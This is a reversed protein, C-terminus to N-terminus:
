RPLCVSADAISGRGRRLGRQRPQPRGLSPHTGVPQARRQLEGPHHRRQHDRGPDRPGAPQRRGGQLQAGGDRVLVLRHREPPVSLQHQPRRGIRLHLEVSPRRPAARQVLSRRGRVAGPRGPRALRARVADRHVAAREVAPAPRHRGPEGVAVGARRRVLGGRPARPQQGVLDVQRHGHLLQHEARDDELRDGPRHEVRVSPAAAQLHPRVLGVAQRARHAALDVAAPHQEDPQRRNGPLRRSEAHQARHHRRGLRPVDLLVVVQGRLIPGGIGANADYIKHIKPTGSELGSTGYTEDDAPGRIGMAGMTPNFNEWTMDRNTGGGFFQVSMDNGGDKPIINIRIGSTGSEADMGTTFTTEAAEMPNMYQKTAGDNSMTNVDLGDVYLGSELPSTGRGSMYVQQTNRSGAIDQANQGFGLEPKIGPVLAAFNYISRGTPIFELTQQTLVATSEARQVDVVPSQGSVTVTEEISGVSMEVSITVTVDGPLVIDDRVQTGFGALSFALRYTGPRLDIIRYRGQGDTVATRVGEILQPSRAEVTVGPLVSGTDDTAGVTRPAAASTSAVASRVPGSAEREHREAASAAIM